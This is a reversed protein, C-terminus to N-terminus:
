AGHKALRAIRVRERGRATSPVSCVYLPPSGPVLTFRRLPLEILRGAHSIGCFGLREPRNRSEQDLRTTQGCKGRNGRMELMGLDSDFYGTLLFNFFSSRQAPHRVSARERPTMLSLGSLKSGEFESFVIFWGFLFDTLVVCIALSEHMTMHVSAQPNMADVAVACFVSPNFIAAPTRSIMPVATLEPGRWFPLFLQGGGLLLQGGGKGPPPNWGGGLLM